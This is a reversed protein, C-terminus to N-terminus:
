IENDPETTTRGSLNYKEPISLICTPVINKGETKSGLNGQKEASKIKHAQIKEVVVEM